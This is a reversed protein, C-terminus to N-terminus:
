QTPEPATKKVLHLKRCNRKRPPILHLDVVVDEVQVISLTSNVSHSDDKLNSRSTPHIQTTSSAPRRAASLQLHTLPSTAGLAQMMEEAISDLTADPLAPFTPKSTSDKGIEFSRHSINHTGNARRRMRNVGVSFSVFNM